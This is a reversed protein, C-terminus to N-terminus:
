GEQHLHSFLSPAVDTPEVSWARSYKKILATVSDYSGRILCILDDTTLELKRKKRYSIHFYPAYIPNLVYDVSLPSFFDKTKTAPEEFLVSWKTAERLFFLDADSLMTASEKASFHSQESESLSPRRHALAFLSGLRLVFTHLQNGHPGFSRIEGLFATSAQRAAEAQAAPTIPTGTYLQKQAGRNISKYCLELFHRINGRSMQQFTKFGAYFPCPKDYPDYLQLLSGIFNNHIWNTRGTFNNEKGRELSNLEEIVDEPNRNKRHLIVPTVISAEPQHPRVFRDVTLSSQRKKLARAISERLKRLLAADNFVEAALESQTVGPLMERAALLMTEIYAPDKRDALKSEDRLQSIGIKPHKIGAIALELFLIEALFVDTDEALMYEELDHVRFDHINALAEPGTTDLTDISNRKMALNFILPKESHKLWTNIIERQYERLNEYEDVYVFFNADTLGALQNKVERILAFVFNRGPLFTPQQMTRVNSVWSEFKWLDTELETRLAKFKSPLQPNFAQLRKFDLQQLDATQLAQSRSTGISILSDIVEMGLILAAMHSFAAEWIDENVGRAHMLNAFHTDTRWFLGIHSLAADPVDPRSPSFMSQHSLYRLLMTKGCGRGGIILRPKRTTQLDLKRYFPPIVFHEWVDYGLEEARNMSLFTQPSSSEVM